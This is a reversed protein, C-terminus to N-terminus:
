KKNRAIEDKELKIYPYEHDYFLDDIKIEEPDYQTRLSSDLCNVLFSSHFVHPPAEKGWRLGESEFRLLRIVRNDEHFDKREAYDPLVEKSDWLVYGPKYVTLRPKRSFIYTGWFADIYIAGDRDAFAEEAKKLKWTGGEWWARETGSWRHWQALAVAGELPLGTEADVIVATPKRQEQCMAAAPLVLCLLMLVATVKKQQDRASVLKRNEM